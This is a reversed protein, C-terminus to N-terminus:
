YKPVGIISKKTHINMRKRLAPPINPVNETNIHEYPKKHIKVFNPGRPKVLSEFHPKFKSSASKSVPTNYSATNMLALEQSDIIENPDFPELTKSNIKGYAINIAIENGLDPGALDSKCEDFVGVTKKSIPDFVRQQRFIQCANKFDEKYNDPIEWKKEAKLGEIAAEGTRYLSIKKIATRIGMRPISPLYDCGALVCAELLMQNSLSAIEPIKMMEDRLLAQCNGEKDLKFLTLPSQYVILDSDETIVLDVIKNYALFAMQADAEYPAVIFEVNQNRLKSFLPQLMEPTIEVSQSYHENAQKMLGCEECKQASRMHKLREERRKENTSRKAPLDCGDFVILPRVGNDILVQVYQMFYNVYKTTKEGLALERSCSLCGRHLWVFGDVAAKKGSYKSVHVNLLASHVFGLLGQIGM